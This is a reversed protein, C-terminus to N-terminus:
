HIESRRNTLGRSCWVKRGDPRIELGLDGQEFIVTNETNLLDFHSADYTGVIEFNLLHRNQRTEPSIAADTVKFGQDLLPTTM